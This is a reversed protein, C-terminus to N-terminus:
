RQDASPVHIAGTLIRRRVRALEAILAPPVKPSIRGLSAGNDQLTLVTTRGTRIRGNRVQALLREFGARYGKVVSTLIHPGLSSQDTDVGIGWVGAIKAAQLTGLGCAGAVNFVTGAGRAIQSRAIAECKNADTFDNSYQELVTIGPDAARAGARFGVVFELVSPIKLGGVVGVVDKHPRKQELRAALWGALYAAESPEQVIAEVNRPHGRLDDLPADFLAFRTKPFRPAVIELADLSAFDVIVLDFGQQALLSLTGVRDERWDPSIVQGSVGSTRLAAVFPRCIFDSSNCGSAVLVVRPHSAHSGARAAGAVAGFTVVAAACLALLRLSARRPLRAPSPRGARHAPAARWMSEIAV